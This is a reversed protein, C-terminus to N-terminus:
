SATVHLSFHFSHHTFFQESINRSMELLYNSNEIFNVIFILALEHCTCDMNTVYVIM